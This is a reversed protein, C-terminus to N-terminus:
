PAGRKAAAPLDPKEPVFIRNIREFLEHNERWWTRLERIRTQLMQPDDDKGPRWSPQGTVIWLMNRAWSKTDTDASEILDILAPVSEVYELVVRLPAEATLKSEYRVTLMYDGPESFKRFIEAIVLHRELRNGNALRVVKREGKVWEVLERGDATRTVMARTGDDLRHAYVSKHTQDPSFRELTYELVATDLTPVDRDETSSLILTLPVRWGLAVVRPLDLRLTLGEASAVRPPQAAEAITVVTMSLLFAAPTAAIAGGM